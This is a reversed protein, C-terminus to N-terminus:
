TKSYLKSFKREGLFLYLYEPPVEKLIDYYCQVFRRGKGTTEYITNKNKKNEEIWGIGMLLKLNGDSQFWSQNTQNMIDTKIAGDKEICLNVMDYLIGLLRRNKHM